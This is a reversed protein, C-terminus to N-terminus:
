TRISAGFAGMPGPGDVFWGHTILVTRFGGSTKVTLTAPMRGVPVDVLIDSSSDCTRLGSTTYNALPTTISEASTTAGAGMLIGQIQGPNIANCRLLQPLPHTTTIQSIIAIVEGYEAFRSEMLQGTVDGGLWIFADASYFTYFAGYYRGGLHIKTEDASWAM